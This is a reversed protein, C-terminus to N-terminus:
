TEEVGVVADHAKVEGRSTVKGVAVVRVVRAVAGGLLDACGGDEELGQGVPYHSAKKM